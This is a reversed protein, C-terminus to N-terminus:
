FLTTSYRLPRTWHLVLDPFYDTRCFWDSTHCVNPTETSDHHHHSSIGTLFYAMALPMLDGVSSTYFGYQVFKNAETVHSTENGDIFHEYMERHEGLLEKVFM